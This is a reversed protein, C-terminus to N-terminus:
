SEAPLYKDLGMKKVLEKFNAEDRLNKLSQSRYFYPNLSHEEYARELWEVALKKEGLGANAIGLAEAVGGRNKSSKIEDVLKLAEERKGTTAYAYALFAKSRSSKSIAVDRELEKIGEETRGMLFLTWGIGFHGMLPDMQAATHYHALAEDFMGADHYMSGAFEQTMPTLPDLELSKGIETLSEETRGLMDLFSAYLTHADVFNPNLELARRFESEAKEWDYEFYYSWLGMSFHAEPIEEDLTLARWILEKGRLSKDMPDYGAFAMYFYQGGLYAMAEPYNPAIELARELHQISKRNNEEDFKRGFFVGKLYEQYAEPNSPGTKEIRRREMDLLRIKLAGAVNEAVSSQVEFIDNLDRDYNEAWLHSETNANILQTTIRIRNGAKRVSGELLTGARLEKGIQSASKKEKKYNMASTRAIVELGKVFSIKTILEETLGDAFFEDNPDPSLSVFPLVAVRKSDLQTTTDAGDKDWPMVAKYVSVPTNVHKLAQEGMSIFQIDSKNRVQSYVEGSICVGGALALPEIRSAINVADGVIDDGRVMVDGVHVGIRISFTDGRAVKRDHMLQQIAISCLLADLASPFEVLFADGITKVERGGHSVFIPRILRQHEELLRITGSENEQALATYGVVDTFMIAALKREGEPM